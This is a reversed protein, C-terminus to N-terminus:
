SAKSHLWRLLAEQSVVLRGENSAPKCSEPMSAPQQKAQQAEGEQSADSLEATAEVPSGTSSAAEREDLQRRSNQTDKSAAHPHRQAITPKSSSSSNNQLPLESKVLTNSVQLM